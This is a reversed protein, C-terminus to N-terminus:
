IVKLCTGNSSVSWNVKRICIQKRNEPYYWLKNVRVEVGADNGDKGSSCTPAAFGLHELQLLVPDGLLEVVVCLRKNNSHVM